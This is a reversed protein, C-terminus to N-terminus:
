VVSPTEGHVFELFAGAVVDEPVVELGCTAAARLALSALRDIGRPNGRSLDYLRGVARPTFRLDDRGAAGLKTAIYDATETRTLAPLRIALLWDAESQDGDPADRGTQIVTVRSSPHPDAHNLRDLDVRNALLHADEVVLVAHLKQWHCLRLTEALARWASARDSPNFRTAGLGSALGALLAAGDIPARVLAIRRRPDRSDALAQTVVVTKGRGAEARLSARPQGTAIADVLRAVAEAHGPTPVFPSAPSLFPDHTLGWHRIWV